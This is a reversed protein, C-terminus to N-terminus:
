EVETLAQARRLPRWVSLLAPVLAWRVFTGRGGLLKAYFVRGAAPLTEKLEWASLGTPDNGWEWTGGVCADALNPLDLTPSRFLLVLGM